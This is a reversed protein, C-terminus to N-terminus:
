ASRGQIPIVKGPQQTRGLYDAWAQMIAVRKNLADGRAYAREVKSGVTHGLAMEAVESPFNTSEQAWTRFTSRCGHTTMAGKKGMRRLVALMANESLPEGTVDNRFLFESASVAGGIDRAMAEARDLVALAATSLPVRHVRETKSLQPITWVRAARDIDAWKGHRVDSTRVCTLIVFELALAAMGQRGRLEQVFGPM